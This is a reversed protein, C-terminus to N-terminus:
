YFYGVCKGKIVYHGNILVAEDYLLDLNVGDVNGGVSLSPVSVDRFTLAGTVNQNGITLFLNQDNVIVGDVTGTVQMSPTKVALCQFFLNSGM